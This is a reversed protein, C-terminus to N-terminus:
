LTFRRTRFGGLKSTWRGGESGALCHARFKHLAFEMMAVAISVPMGVALLYFLFIVNDWTLPYPDSMGYQENTFYDPYWHRYNRRILGHEHQKMIYYNFVEHFESDKQLALTSYSWSSDTTKLLQFKTTLEKKIRSYPSIIGYTGYIM